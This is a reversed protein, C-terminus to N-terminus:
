DPGRTWALGPPSSPDDWKRRIALEAGVWTQARDFRFGGLERHVVRLDDVGVLRGRARAQLCLDVDYGHFGGALHADFRLNRVAWPSLGIFIGDIAEVYRQSGDFTMPPLDDPLEVVGGSVPGAWWRLGQRGHGGAVGLIALRPDAAFRRPLLEAAAGDLLEIDQHIVAVADLDDRPALEDLMANVTEQYSVTTDRDVVLTDPAAGLLRQVGPLAYREYKDRRTIPICLAIM